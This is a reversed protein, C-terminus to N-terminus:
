TNRINPWDIALDYQPKQDLKSIYRVWGESTMPVIETQDYGWRTKAWADEIAQKFETFNMTEPQDIVAHYHFRVLADHELVAIVKLGKGFRRAANGYVERNLRNLFHRFNRSALMHDINQASQRQKMTLTVAVPASWKISISYQVFAEQIKVANPSHGSM